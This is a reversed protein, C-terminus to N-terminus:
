TRCPDYGGTRRKRRKQVDDIPKEADIPIAWVRGLRYAEPIHDKDCLIEDRRQTLGLEKAEDKPTVFNM